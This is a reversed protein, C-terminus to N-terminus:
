RNRNYNFAKNIAQNVHNITNIFIFDQHADQDLTKHYLTTIAEDPVGALNALGSIAENVSRGGWIWDFGKEHGLYLLFILPPTLNDILWQDTLTM